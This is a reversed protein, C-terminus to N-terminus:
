SPAGGSHQRDPNFHAWLNELPAQSLDSDPLSNAEDGHATFLGDGTLERIHVLPGDLKKEFLAEDVLDKALAADGVFIPTRGDPMPVRFAGVGRHQEAIELLRPIFGERHYLWPLSALLPVSPLTPLDRLPRPPM